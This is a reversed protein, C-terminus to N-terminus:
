NNKDIASQIGEKLESFGIEQQVCFDKISLTVNPMDKQIIYEIEEKTVGWDLLEKFTTNGKIQKDESSQQKNNIEGNKQSQQPNKLLESESNTSAEPKEPIEVEIYQETDLNSLDITYDDLYELQEQTLDANDRLVQYASVPLYNGKLEIPLGLYFAVFIKASDTGIEFGKKVAAEYKSELDKCKFEKVNESENLGFAKALHEPPIEFNKSIDEFSYSGRIDAPNYSGEFDGSTYRAPVKSSETEWYNLSNSVAIGGFMLVVITIALSLPKLKIQM